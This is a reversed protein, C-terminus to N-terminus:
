SLTRLVLIEDQLIFKDTLMIGSKIKDKKNEKERQDMMEGNM